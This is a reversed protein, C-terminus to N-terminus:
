GPGTRRCVGSGPDALVSIGVQKKRAAKEFLAEVGSLDNCTFFELEMSSDVATVPDFRNLM